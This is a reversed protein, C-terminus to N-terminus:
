IDFKIKSNIIGDVLENERAKAFLTQLENELENARNISVKSLIFLLLRISANLNTTNGTKIRYKLNPIRKIGRSQNFDFLVGNHSCINRINILSIFYNNLLEVERFGYVASITKKLEENKLNTYFKFTQGFTFFEFVKWAPAYDCHHKNHHKILTNNKTKLNFYISNFEKFIQNDVIKSDVYWTNNESYHNSALYILQTRFHVEIRYIYRLLLMKLDFDFYYLKVIDDLKINANFKHTKNDQFYYWYFGLRYYGIDLLIEKAKEIEENNAFTIGRGILKEIQEDVTTAKGAM